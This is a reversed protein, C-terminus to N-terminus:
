AAFDRSHGELHLWESRADLLRGMAAECRAVSCRDLQCDPAEVPVTLEKSMAAAVGELPAIAQVVETVSSPEPRDPISEDKNTIIRNM